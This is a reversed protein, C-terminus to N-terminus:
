KVEKFIQDPDSHGVIKCHRPNRVLSEMAFGLKRKTYSYFVYMQDLANDYYEDLDFIAVVLGVTDGIRIIDGLEVEQIELPGMVGTLRRIIEKKTEEPMDSGAVQLITNFDM